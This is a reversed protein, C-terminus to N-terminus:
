HSDSMSPSTNIYNFVNLVASGITVFILLALVWSSVGKEEETKKKAERRKEREAPSQSVTKDILEGRKRMVTPSPM